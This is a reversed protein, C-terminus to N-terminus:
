KKVAQIQDMSFLELIIPGKPKSPEAPKAPEAPKTPEAPKDKKQGSVGSGQGSAKAKVGGPLKVVAKEKKPQEAVEDEEFFHIIWGFVTADDVCVCGDSKDLTRAQETAYRVAGALTKTGANIKEALVDSANQNLYDLIRQETSGDAKLRLINM